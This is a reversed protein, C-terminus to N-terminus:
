RLLLMKRTKSVGNVTLQVMYTGTAAANGMADTGDWLAEYRGPTSYTLQVLEVGEGAAHRLAVPAGVPQQLLNFVRASVVVDRGDFLDEELVFPITTSRSFPNPYNQELRFGEAREEASVPDRNQAVVPDAPIGSALALLIVLLVRTTKPTPSPAYLLRQTM